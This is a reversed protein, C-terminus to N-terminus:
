LFVGRLCANGHAITPYARCIDPKIEQISCIAREPSVRELFPCDDELTGTEPDIWIWGIGSVRRLLDERGLRRWRDLDAQSAELHGGFAECCQGCCLCQRPVKPRPAFARRLWDTLSPM